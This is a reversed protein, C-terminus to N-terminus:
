MSAFGLWDVCAAARGSVAALRLELLPGAVCREVRRLSAAPQGELDEDLGGVALGSVAILALHAGQDCAQLSGRRQLLAHAKCFWHCAQRLLWEVQVLRAV